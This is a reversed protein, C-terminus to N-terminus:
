GVAACCPCCNKWCLPRVATTCGASRWCRRANSRRRKPWHRNKIEGPIGPCCNLGSQSSCCRLPRKSLINVHTLHTYSVTEPWGSETKEGAPECGAAGCGLHRYGGAGVAHCPQVHAAHSQCLLDACLQIDVILLAARQHQCQVLLFLHTYSVPKPTNVVPRNSAPLAELTM